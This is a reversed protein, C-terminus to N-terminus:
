IALAARIDNRHATPVSPEYFNDNVALREKGDDKGTLPDVKTTAYNGTRSVIHPIHRLLLSTVNGDAMLNKSTFINKENAGLSGSFSNHEKEHFKKAEDLTKLAGLLDARNGNVPYHGEDEPTFAFSSFFHCLLLYEPTGQLAYKNALSMILAPRMDVNGPRTAPLIILNNSKLKRSTEIASASYKAVGEKDVTEAGPVESIAFVPIRNNAANILCEAHEPLNGSGAMKLVVGTYNKDVTGEYLRLSKILKLDVVVSRLYERVEKPADMMTRLWVSIAHAQKEANGDALPDYYAINTNKYHEELKDIDPLESGQNLPQLAALERGAPTVFSDLDKVALLDGDYINQSKDSIKKVLGSFIKQGKNSVVFVQRFLKKQIADFATIFNPPGDSDKSDAPKQSTIIAIPWRMLRGFLLDLFQSVQACTDTGHIVLFGKISGKHERSSTIIRRAIEVREKFTANTSDITPDLPQYIIETGDRLYYKKDEDNCYLGKDLFDERLNSALVFDLFNEHKVPSRPRDKTRCLFTGGTALIVIAEGNEGPAIADTPKQFLAILKAREAFEKKAKAIDKRAKTM